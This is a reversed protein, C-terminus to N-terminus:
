RSMQSVTNTKSNPPGSTEGPGALRHQTGTGLTVVTEQAKGTELTEGSEQTKGTEGADLGTMRDPRGTIAPSNGPGGGPTAATEEHISYTTSTDPIEPNLLLLWLSGSIAMLFVIAAAARTFLPTIVLIRKKSRAQLRSKMQNWAGEDVPERYGDFAERVNEAFKEDFPRM